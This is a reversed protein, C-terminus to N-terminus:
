RQSEACHPCKPLYTLRDQLCVHCKALRGKRRAYLYIFLGAWAFPEVLMLIVYGAERFALLFFGTAATMVFRIVVHIAIYFATWALGNMGRGYADKALFGAFYLILILYAAAALAILIRFGSRFNNEAIERDEELKLRAMEEEFKKREVEKAMAVPDIDKPPAERKGILRTALFFVLGIVLLIGGVLLVSQFLVTKTSEDSNQGANPDDSRRSRRNM